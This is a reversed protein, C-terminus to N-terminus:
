REMLANLMRGTLSGLSTVCCMSSVSNWWKRQVRPGRSPGLCGACPPAGPLALRGCAPAPPLVSVYPPLKWARASTPGHKAAPKNVAQQRGDRAHVLGSCTCHAEGAHGTRHCSQWPVRCVTLVCDSGGGQRKCCGGVSVDNAFGKRESCM